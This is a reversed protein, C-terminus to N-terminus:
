NQKPHKMLAEAYGQTISDIGYDGNGHTAIQYGRSHADLVSENFKEQTMALFGTNNPEMHYGEHLAATLGPISGDQFLKVGGIRFQDDGSWPSIGGEQEIDDEIIKKWYPYYLYALIRTSIDENQKAEMYG